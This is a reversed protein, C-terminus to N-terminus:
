LPIRELALMTAQELTLYKGTEWASDFDALQTRLLQVEAAFENQSPISWPINLAQRLQQAASYLQAARELHGLQLDTFALSELCELTNEKTGIRLYLRLAERLLDQSQQWNGDARPYYSLTHLSLAMGHLDDLRRRIDLSAQNLERGRGFDGLYTLAIGLNNYLNALAEEDGLQRHVPLAQEYLAVGRAADGQAVAVLGLYRLCAAVLELQNQKQALSLAQEFNGQAQEYEGRARLVLGLGTLARAIGTENHLSRQLTLANEQFQAAGAFDSQHYALMGAAYLANAHTHLSVNPAVANDAHLLRAYWERGEAYHGHVKWFRWLAAAVSFAAEDQRTEYAWQLANRLNYHDLELRQMWAAQRPGALENEAQEVLARYYALHRNKITESEGSARLKERAYQKISDLFSYRTESKKEQTYLLSKSVLRSLLDLIQSPEIGDGACVAEVAALTRGGSFVGLRWLLKREPPSLLDFSWDILARLTQQRPLVTRQGSTLLTFRDGLRAALEEPSLVNIRAAALELALPIGDLRQCIKAVTLANRDTLVFDPKVARAREVFLRIGEYSMLLETLTTSDAEPVALTPVNWVLEGPVRLAERSTALIKVQACRQLIKEALRACAGIVHECNDFVLLLKRTDLWDLLTDTMTCDPQERVGLAKTVAMPVQTEDNLVALEVWWVGDTFADILDTGAQVALRTKGSGGAGTLTVLRAHLMADKLAVMERQRGVFSSLPIPLNTIRAALSGVGGAGGASQTIWEALATTEPMPAVGLERDLAQVCQRYASLASQRDGVAVHCFMLHQFARENAPDTLLIHQVVQLARTYESSSRLAQVLRLSLALYMERYQERLPSIWEEYMEPLLDGRYLRCRAELESLPLAQTGTETTKYARAMERADVWLPIDPNLQLTTRETLVIDPHLHKRLVGLATRLSTRAADDPVDGWFLTAIQERTHEQPYLVLFALLAEVKRRPLRIPTADHELLFTGLLYLQM